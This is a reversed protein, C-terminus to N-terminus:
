SILDNIWHKFDWYLSQPTGRDLAPTYDVHLSPNEGKRPLQGQSHNFIHRHCVGWGRLAELVGEQGHQLAQIQEPEWEKQEGGEEWQQQTAGAAQTCLSCIPLCIELGATGWCFCTWLSRWETSGLCHWHWLFSCSPHRSSGPFNM